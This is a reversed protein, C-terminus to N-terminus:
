LKLSKTHMRIREKSFGNSWNQKSAHTREEDSGPSQRGLKKSGRLSNVLKRASKRATGCCTKEQEKRLFEFIKLESFESTRKTTLTTRESYEGLPGAQSATRPLWGPYEWSPSEALSEALSETSDTSGCWILASGHLSCSSLRTREEEVNHLTVSNGIMTCLTSLTGLEALEMTATRRCGAGQGSSLSLVALQLVAGPIQTLYRRRITYGKKPLEGPQVLCDQIKENKAYNCSSSLTLKINWTRYEFFRPPADALLGSSRYFAALIVKSM